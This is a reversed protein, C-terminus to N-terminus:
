VPDLGSSHRGSMVRRPSERRGDPDAPVSSWSYGGLLASEACRKSFDGLKEEGASGSGRDRM